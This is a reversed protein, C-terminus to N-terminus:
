GLTNLIMGGRYGLLIYEQILKKKKIYMIIFFLVGIITITEFLVVEIVNINRNFFILKKNFITCRPM